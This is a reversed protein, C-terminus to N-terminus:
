SVFTVVVSKVVPTNLRFLPASNVVVFKMTLADFPTNSKVVPWFSSLVNPSIVRVLLKDRLISASKASLVDSVIFPLIDEVVGFAVLILKFVTVTFLSEAYM